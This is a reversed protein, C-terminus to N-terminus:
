KVTLDFRGCSYYAMLRVEYHGPALSVDATIPSKTSAYALRTLGNVVHLELDCDFTLVFHYVRATDSVFDLIRCPANRDWTPDCRPDTNGISGSVTTNLPLNGIEPVGQKLTLDV